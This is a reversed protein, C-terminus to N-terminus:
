LEISLVCECEESCLNCKPSADDHKGFCTPKDSNSTPAEVVEVVEELKSDDKVELEDLEFPLQIDDDGEFPVLKPEPKKEATNPAEAKPTPNIISSGLYEQTIAQAVQNVKTITDDTVDAKYYISNLDPLKDLLADFEEDTDFSSVKHFADFTTTFKMPEKGKQTREIIVPIGTNTGLVEVINPGADVMIKNLQDYVTKTYMLLVIDKKRPSNEETFYTADHDIIQAYCVGRIKYGYKRFAGIENGKAQEVSKIAECIPCKMPEGNVSFQSLCPVKTKGDADAPHRIIRRQLGGMKKNVLLKVTLKGNKGIYVIPYESEYSNSRSPEAALEEAMKEQMAKFDFNDM